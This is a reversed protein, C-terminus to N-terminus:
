NPPGECIGTRFMDCPRDRFADNAPGAVFDLSVCDEIGGDPNGAAWVEYSWTEGTVWEYTDTMTLDRGAIWAEGSLLVQSDLFDREAASTIASLDWGGGHNQCDARQNDWTRTTSEFHYCRKSSPDQVAFGPCTPGTGGSGGTGVSGGAGVAGGAGGSGPGAGGVSTTTTTMSSSSSAGGGVAGGGPGTVSIGGAGGSGTARPDLSDWDHGCAVGTLAAFVILPIPASRVVEITVARLTDV